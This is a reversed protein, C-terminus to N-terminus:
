KQQTIELGSNMNKRKPQYFFTTCKSSLEKGANVDKDVINKLIKLAKKQINKM